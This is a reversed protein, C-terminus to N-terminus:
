EKELAQLNLQAELLNIRAQLTVNEADLLRMRNEAVDIRAQATKATRRDEVITAVMSMVTDEEVVIYVDPDFESFSFKLYWFEENAEKAERNLKELWLKKMTFSEKGPAQQVVKTKLEEMINVLGRIQEDGKVKGAGSNPTMRSGTLLAQNKEHNSYEFASGMRKDAKQQRRAMQKPKAQKPPEYHQSNTFCLDCKKEFNQCDVQGWECSIM